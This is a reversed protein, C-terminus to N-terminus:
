KRGKKIPPTDEVLEYVLGEPGILIKNYIESTGSSIMLRIAEAKSYPGCLEHGDQYQYEIFWRVDGYGSSEMPLRGSGSCCTCTKTFHQKDTKRLTPM